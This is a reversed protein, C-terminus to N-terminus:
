FPARKPWFYGLILTLTLVVRDPSSLVPGLGVRDKAITWNSREPGSHILSAIILRDFPRLTASARVAAKSRAAHIARNPAGHGYRGWGARHDTTRTCRHTRPLTYGPHTGAVWYIPTWSGTYLPGPGTNPSELALIISGLNM